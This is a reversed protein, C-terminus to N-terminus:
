HWNIMLFLVFLVTTSIIKFSRTLKFKLEKNYFENLPPLVIFSILLFLVASFHLNYIGIIGLFTSIIGTLWALFFNATIVKIKNNKMKSIRKQNYNEESKFMLYSLWDVIKIITVLLIYGVVCWCISMITLSLIANKQLLWEYINNPIYTIQSEYNMYNHNGSNVLANILRNIFGDLSTSIWNGTTILTSITSITEIVLGSLLLFLGGFYILLLIAGIGSFTQIIMSRLSM